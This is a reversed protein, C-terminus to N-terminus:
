TRLGWVAISARGRGEGRTRYRFVIKRIARDRGPLDIARSEGDAPIFDRMSVNFRQGNAFVVTVEGFEVGRDRVLIKIRNFKGRAGGVAIEDRDAVRDVMRQGLLVWESAAAAALSSTVLLALAVVCVVSRCM